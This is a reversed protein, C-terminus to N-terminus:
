VLGAGLTSLVVILLATVLAMGSGFAISLLRNDFKLHMFWLVVLVFKAASLTLLIALLAGDAIDLYYVAVEVATIVALVVGIKIYERADPHDGEVHDLIEYEPQAPAPQPWRLEVPTLAILVGLAGLAVFPIGILFSPDEFFDQVNLLVTLLEVM